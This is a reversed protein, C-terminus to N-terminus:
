RELLWTLLKDHGRYDAIVIDAGAPALRDRKWKNIGGPAEDSAVAIATGGVRRIEETEIVGDGFSLLQEGRLRNEDLIREIVAQKSFIADDGEPAHIEAGFFHSLRLLEAETRVFHLHTGSALYLKLGRERLASLIDNAGPVTWREPPCRGDCIEASRERIIRALRNDYERLYAAPAEAKGGRAQIEEVLRMMQFIAPRGNLAMVFEEVRSTLDAECEEFGAHKLVEVMMSCMIKPWGERLLSLTGDFDFLVARYGGRPVSQRIIEIESGIM